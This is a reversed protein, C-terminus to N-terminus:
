GNDKLRKVAAKFMDGRQKYDNFMDFSSCAPALLVVDGEAAENFATWVAGGMDKVKIWPITINFSEALIDRAEGLLVVVKVRGLASKVLPSYDSGKHRGGAILVIQSSFSMISKIAADINTAKSDNYFEVGKYKDVFEIRHPLGHFEDVGLQIACLPIKLLASVLIAAVLNGRNHNGPLNWNHLSVTISDGDPLKVFVCGNGIFANRNKEGKLGYRYMVVGNVPELKKLWIDDDNIILGQGIGQNKFIREKSRRYAKYDEYRDLHDPSINLIVSILPSFYDKVSDLQYSSVELAVYDAKQDGAIYNILPNGINGGVFVEKGAKRLIDGILTVVTTKGNTGTVAIINTKIYRCALEMDGIVPIGKNKASVLPEITLPVGPSVVILDTNTFTELKHGGLELKVGKRLLDDIVSRKFDPKDRKESVTVSVGKTVLWQATALGSEGLGVVLINKEIKEQNETLKL